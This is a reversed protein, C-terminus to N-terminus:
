LDHAAGTPPGPHRDDACVSQPVGGRGLHKARAPAQGLNPLHQAMAAPVDGRDVGLDVPEREDLDNLRPRSCPM